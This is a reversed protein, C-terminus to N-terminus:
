IKDLLTTLESFKNIYFKPLEEENWDHFGYKAAVFLIDLEETNVKDSITDGIYIVDKASCKTLSLAYQIADKKRSFKLGGKSVRYDVGIVLDVLKHLGKSRIINISPITPKNTIISIRINKKYFIEKLSSEVNQYFTFIKYSRNDYDERFSSTTKSFTIEDIDKFINKLMKEIPPGIQLRFDQFNPPVLKNEICAKAFSEYIGKSSDILTGDLDFFIYKM